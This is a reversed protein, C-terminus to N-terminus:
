INHTNNTSTRPPASICIRLARSQISQLKSLSKNCSGLYLVDGYDLYPLIKTKYILLAADNTIFKRIRSLLYVKHSALRFTEKLHKQYNLNQDLIVGLYKYHDVFQIEQSSIDIKPLKKITVFKKSGFLMNKTKKANITLQNSDCWETLLRLDTQLKSHASDMTEGSSYVVTDDAFLHVTSETLGVDIDNIYLLFLTPGLISGQPVGCGM